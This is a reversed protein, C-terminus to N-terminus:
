KSSGFKLRNPIVMSHAEVVVSDVMQQHAEQFAAKDALRMPALCKADMNIVVEHPVGLEVLAAAPKEEFRERFGDNTSLELLLKLMQTNTLVADSVHGGRPIAPFPKRIVPAPIAAARPTYRSHDPADAISPWGAAIGHIISVGGSGSRQM